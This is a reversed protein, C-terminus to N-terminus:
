DRSVDVFGLPIVANGDEREIQKISAIGGSRTGHTLNPEM